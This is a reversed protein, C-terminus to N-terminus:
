LIAFFTDFIKWLKVPFFRYFFLDLLDINDINVFM